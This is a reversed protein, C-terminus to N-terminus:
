RWPSPKRTVAGVLASGLQGTHAISVSNQYDASITLPLAACDALTPFRVKIPRGPARRRDSYDMAQISFRPM